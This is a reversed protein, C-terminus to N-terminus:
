NTDSTYPPLTADLDHQECSLHHRMLSLLSPRRVAIDHKSVGLKRLVLKAQRGSVHDRPTRHNDGSTDGMVVVYRSMLHIGVHRTVLTLVRVPGGGSEGTIRQLLQEDDMKQRMMTYGLRRLVLRYCVVQTAADGDNYSDWDDDDDAGLLRPM